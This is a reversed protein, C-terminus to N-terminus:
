SLGELYYVKFTLYSECALLPILDRIEIGGLVIYPVALLVTLLPVSPMARPGGPVGERGAKKKVREVVEYTVEELHAFIELLEHLQCRWDGTQHNAM